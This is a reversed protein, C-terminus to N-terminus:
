KRLHKKKKYGPFLGNLIINALGLVNLTTTALLTILVNDKIYLCWPTNFMTILLVVLLWISVLGMMWCVLWKRHKTDQGYRIAEQRDLPLSDIDSGNTIDGCEAVQSLSMKYGDFNPNNTM